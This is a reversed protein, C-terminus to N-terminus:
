VSGSYFVHRECTCNENNDDDEFAVEVAVKASVSGQSHDFRFKRLDCTIHEPTILM